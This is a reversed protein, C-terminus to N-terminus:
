SPVRGLRGLQRRRDAIVDRLEEATAGYGLQNLEDFEDDPIGTSRDLLLYRNTASDTDTGCELAAEMLELRLDGRDWGEAGEDSAPIAGIRRLRGLAAELGAGPQGQDASGAESRARGLQVTLTALERWLETARDAREDPMETPELGSSVASTEPRTLDITGFREGPSTGSGGGFFAAQICANRLAEARVGFADPPLDLLAAGREVLRLLERGHEAVVQLSISAGHRRWSALPEAVRVVRGALGVKIWLIFDSMFHLDTDWAGTSELVNRRVLCGPGIVTEILRFAEVPSYEIPRVTDIATGESDIIRYGPYAAAVEPDALERVLRSVAGPALLDDDSLYGLLEGRSLEYGRNLTRAQGMNAHRSFRFREPPHRREYDRLLEPTADASGDDVVLLELDAYDQELVSDMALRLWDRRNHTAIVISVSPQYLGTVDGNV